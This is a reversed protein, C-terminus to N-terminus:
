LFYAPATRKVETIGSGKPPAHEFQQIKHNMNEDVDVIAAKNGCRYCYNPASFM